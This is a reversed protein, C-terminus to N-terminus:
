LQVEDLDAESQKAQMLQVAEARGKRDRSIMRSDLARQFVSILSEKRGPKSAEDILKLRVMPLIMRTPTETIKALEDGGNSEFLIRYAIPKADTEEEFASRPVMSQGPTVM